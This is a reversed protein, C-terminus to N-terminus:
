QPVAEGPAYATKAITKANPPLSKLYRYLAKLDVTDMRSFAGWPMPSGPLIRGNKFRNVFTSEDWAAMVGAEAHPTLNPSVHSWGNSFPDPEFHMGGAFPTGIFAGTKMDRETHCGVCNAVYNALYHGYAVTSDREMRAPPTEKPGEPKILGLAMVAKGMFTFEQPVVAHEVPEQSRLYSIVATLDEDSLGQFPMFPMLGRGDHGVMHRLARALEGDTRPGIGTAHPTLNPARFTGPPISLEWGGSLPDMAGGEVAVIRDMPMHCTACHAPGYALYRGRAIIASDTSAHFDPYPTDSYSKKWTLQVFLVFAVVILALLMLVRKLFKM